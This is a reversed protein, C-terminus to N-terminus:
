RLPPRRSGDWARDAKEFESEEDSVHEYDSGMAEFALADLEPEASPHHEYTDLENLLDFREVEHYDEAPEFAEYFEADTADNYAQLAHNRARLNAEDLYPEDEGRPVESEQAKTSVPLNLLDSLRRAPVACHGETARTVMLRASRQGYFEDGRTGTNRGKGYDQRYFVSVELGPKANLWSKWKSVTGAYTTDFAWVQSLRGLAGQQMQPDSYSHALPELFDYARSHGAIVLNRLSPTANSQVRGVEALVEAVLGNLNGPKGLAHWRRRSKGFAGEGGPNAWDLYPVVLVISRGSAAVINGLRFPADTIMGDPISKPRPCGNLLGHAYVLVEVEQKSLAAQPCFVAVRMPLTKSEFGWLKGGLYTSTSAPKPAMRALADTLARRTAADLKPDLGLGRTSKFTILAQETRADRTGPQAFMSAQALEELARQALALETPADLVGGTGLGYKKRFRELAARTLRGLDGDDSLREGEAANLVRQAFRVLEATPLSTRGQEFAHGPPSGLGPARLPAEWEAEPAYMEGLEWGDMFPTHGQYWPHIPAREEEVAAEDVFPSGAVWPDAYPRVPDRASGDQSSMLNEKRKEGTQGSRANAYVWGRLWKSL